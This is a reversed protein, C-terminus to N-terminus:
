PSLPNTASVLWTSGNLRVAGDSGAFPLLAREIAARVVPLHEMGAERVFRSTPGIRTTNESAARPSAGLLVPADFRQVDIDVFGADSLLGRLRSEDALAFPGPATPDAPAPSAGLAQRAAALPAMTWPNDHPTRWCVCVWRGGRRLASRLHVFAPLPEEFFMVGFRSFLLDVDAPLAANSADAQRFELTLPGLGAARARAVELMPQSVDIGLVHGTAGVRRALAFSTDGCGCGVDIVREGPQPAARALAADGFPQVIGETDAQLDAWRQGQPGNWEAIQAANAHSM